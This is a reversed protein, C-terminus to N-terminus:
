WPAFYDVIVYPSSKIFDAFTADTLETVPLGASITLPAAASAPPHQDCANIPPMKPVPVDQQKVTENKNSVIDTVFKVITDILLHIRNNSVLNINQYM